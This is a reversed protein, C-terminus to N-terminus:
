IFKGKAKKKGKSKELFSEIVNTKLFVDANRGGRLSITFNRLTFDFLHAILRFINFNNQSKKIEVEDQGRM